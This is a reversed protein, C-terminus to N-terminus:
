VEQPRFSEDATDRADAGAAVVISKVAATITAGQEIPIVTRRAQFFQVTERWVM